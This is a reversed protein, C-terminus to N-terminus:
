YNEDEEEYDEDYDDDDEDSGDHEPQPDLDIHFYHSRFNHYIEETEKKKEMFSTAELTIGGHFCNEIMFSAPVKWVDVKLENLIPLLHKRYYARFNKSHFDTSDLERNVLVTVKSLDIKGHVLVYQKQYVYNEPLIVAMVQPTYVRSWRESELFCTLQGLSVSFTRANIRMSQGDRFARPTFDFSSASNDVFSVDVLNRDKIFYNSQGKLIADFVNTNLVTLRGNIIQSNVLQSLGINLEAIAAAKYPDETSHMYRQYQRFRGDASYNTWARSNVEFSNTLVKLPIMKVFPSSPNANYSSNIQESSSLNGCTTGIVAPITTREGVSPEKWFMPMEKKRRTIKRKVVPEPEALESDDVLEEEAYIMTEGDDTIRMREQAGVDMTTNITTTTYPLTSGINISGNLTTHTGIGSLSSVMFNSFHFSSGTSYEGASASIITGEQMVREIIGDPEAAPAAYREFEVPIYDPVDETIARWELPGSPLIRRM